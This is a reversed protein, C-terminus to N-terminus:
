ALEVKSQEDLSISSHEGNPKTFHVTAVVIDDEPLRQTALGTALYSLSRFAGTVVTPWERDGVRVTQTLRINQGPKLERLFKSLEPSVPRTASPISPYPTTM